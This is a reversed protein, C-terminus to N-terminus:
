LTSCHIAASITELNLEQELHFRIYEIAKRILLVIIKLAFIEKSAECYERLM